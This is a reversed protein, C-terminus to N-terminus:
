TKLKWKPGDRTDEVIIGLEALKLRIKDATVYDRRLRAEERLELILEILKSAKDGLTSEEFDLGLTNLMTKLTKLAREGDERSLSNASLANNISRIFEFLVSLAKPTDLDTELSELFDRLAGESDIKSESVAEGEKIHTTNQLGFMTSRIRRLNAEAQDLVQDNFELPKRYHTSLLALRIVDPKRQEFLEILDVTNGISKSMKEQAKTVWGVHVWHHALPKGTLSESQAIENEHHPFILDQGGGHIHISDGLYKKILTSCEIHWGPRGKGWPSMWGVEDPGAAKWLAFDEPNRKNESPDVRAGAILGGVKQQSLKGYEKFKKVEFYVDGGSVYAYGRSVLEKIFDIIEPINQTVRPYYHARLVHLKDMVEFYEQIYKEAVESPQINMEKSKMIIKDDIDTFNQVHIVKYGRLELTRRLLDFVLFTRAHGVHIHSQPTLGCVYMKIPSGDDVCLEEIIKTLTNYLRLGVALIVM